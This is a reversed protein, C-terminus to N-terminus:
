LRYVTTYKIEVYTGIKNPKWKILKNERKDSEKKERKRERARGREWVCVCRAREREQENEKKKGKQTWFLASIYNSYVSAVEM